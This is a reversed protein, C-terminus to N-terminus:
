KQINSFKTLNKNGAILMQSAYNLNAKGSKNKQWDNGLWCTSFYDEACKSSGLVTQPFSCSGWENKRQMADALIFLHTPTRIYNTDSEELATYLTKGQNWREIFGNWRTPFFNNFRSGTAAKAGLNIWTQNLTSGYCNCQWVLRLNPTKVNQILEKATVPTNQGYEEKSSRFSPGFGHSFIFLDTTYGESGLRNLESILNDQTPKLLVDVSDATKNGVVFPGIDLDKFKLLVSHDYGQFAKEIRVTEQALAKLYSDEGFYFFVLSATKM